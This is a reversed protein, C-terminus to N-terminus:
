TDTCLIVDVYKYFKTDTLSPMVAKDVIIKLISINDFALITKATQLSVAGHDCQVTENM